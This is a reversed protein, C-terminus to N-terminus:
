ELRCKGNCEAPQLCVTMNVTCYIYFITLTTQGQMVPKDETCIFCTLPVIECTNLVRYTAACALTASQARYRATVWWATLLLVHLLSQYCQLTTSISQVCVYEPEWVAADTLNRLVVASCYYWACKIKLLGLGTKDHCFYVSAFRGNHLHVSGTKLKKSSGRHVLFAPNQLLPTNNIHKCKAVMFWKLWTLSRLDAKRLAKLLYSIM